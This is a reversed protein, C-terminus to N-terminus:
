RDVVVRPEDAERAESGAGPQKSRLFEVDEQTDPENAFVAEVLWQPQSVYEGFDSVSLVLKWRTSMWEESPSARM